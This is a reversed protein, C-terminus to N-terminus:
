IYENYLPSENHWNGVAKCQMNTLNGGSMEGAWAVEERMGNLIIGLPKIM